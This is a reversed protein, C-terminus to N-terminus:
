PLLGREELALRLARLAYYSRSKATGVPIGLTSAAEAVTSGRYYTEVLVARHDPTLAALAAAVEWSVLARELEDEDPLIALADDGVEHPRARRARHGDVVLNRAVTYLWPRVSGREPALSEAHRWARVLTEQVVDEAGQRDGSNLRMVYGLLPGAHEAYLARLLDEDATRTAGVGRDRRSRGPPESAPANVM